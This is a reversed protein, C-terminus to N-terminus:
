LVCFYCVIQCVLRLSCLAIFLYGQCQSEMSYICYCGNAVNWIWYNLTLSHESNQPKRMEDATLGRSSAAVYKTEVNRYHHPQQVKTVHYLINPKSRATTALNCFKLLIAGYIQKRCQSHCTQLIKVMHHNFCNLVVGALVSSFFDGSHM